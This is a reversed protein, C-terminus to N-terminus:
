EHELKLRTSLAKTLAETFVKRTDFQETALMFHLVSNHLNVTKVPVSPSM